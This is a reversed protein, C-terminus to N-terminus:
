KMPCLRRTLRLMSKYYGWAKQIEASPSGPREFRRVIASIAVYGLRYHAYRAMGKVAYKVGSPSNAWCRPDTICAPMAGGLRLQFPGFSVGHDGVAGSFNGECCAVSLTAAADVHYRRATKIICSQLTKGYIPRDARTTAMANTASAGFLLAVSLLAVTGLLIRKSMVGKRNRTHLMNLSCGM